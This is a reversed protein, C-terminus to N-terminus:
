IKQSLLHFILRILSLLYLTKKNLYKYAGSKFSKIDTAILVVITCKKSINKWKQWKHFNVLNDAGM